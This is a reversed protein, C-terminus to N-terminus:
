IAEMQLDSLRSVKLDDITLLVVNQSCKITGRVLSKARYM